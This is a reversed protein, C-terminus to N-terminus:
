LKLLTQGSFSVTHLGDDTVLLSLSIHFKHKTLCPSALLINYRLMHPYVLIYSIIHKKYLLM